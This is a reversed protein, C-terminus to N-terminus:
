DDALMQQWDDRNKAYGMIAQLIEQHHMAKNEESEIMTYAPSNRGFNHEINDIFKGFDARAQDLEPADSWWHHQDYFLGKLLNIKEIIQQQKQRYQQSMRVETDFLCQEIQEAPIMQTPYGQATLTEMSFLMVDGFFQREFEGSLDVRNQQRDIGPRFESEGIAQITRKHLMPLNASVFGESIEAKIIRGLVPGAMRLKLHAFPIFYKLVAPRFIYNGTYITRAPKIGASLDEHQYYSKRTPHEGDFFHNLQESFEKFCASHDHEGQTSCAYDYHKSVSKFGLLDAMDHYAADDVGTVNIPHFQCVQSSSYDRMRKLFHIVDDMFNAAMVSPSVPPDGVVKGTLISVDTNSFIQDLHYFYNIAYCDRGGDVTAVKVRFEQDSDIFYFLVREDRAALQRLKLYSINRMISAGKHSFVSAHGDGIIPALQQQQDMTLDAIQQRQEDQGYYITQLGQQNFYAAIQQHQDINDWGASDDAILVQLRTYGYLRCLSLLSDLCTKLHQPRDAVPIVIIFRHRDDQGKGAIHGEMEQFLQQYPELLAEDLGQAWLRQEILPIVAHYLSLLDDSGRNVAHLRTHLDDFVADGAYRTLFYDLRPCLNASM